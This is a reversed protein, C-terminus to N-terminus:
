GHALAGALQFDELLLEGSAVMFATLGMLVWATEQTGQWRGDTRHAMLWRAANAVLPNDPEIKSM